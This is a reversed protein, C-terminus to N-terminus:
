ERKEDLFPYFDPQRPIRENLMNKFFAEYQEDHKKKQIETERKQKKKKGLM